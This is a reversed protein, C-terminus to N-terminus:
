SYMAANYVIKAIADNKETHYIVQSKDNKEYNNTTCYYLLDGTLQNRYKCKINFLSNQYLNCYQKVRIISLKLGIYEYLYGKTSLLELLNLIITMM